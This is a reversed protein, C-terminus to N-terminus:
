LGRNSVRSAAPPAKVATSDKFELKIDRLATSDPALVVTGVPMANLQLLYALIDANVDPALSGPDNDPMKESVYKFLDLLPRNGWSRAFASGTQTSPAHCSKCSGMFLDRGRTAQEATYVGAQTTREAPKTTDQALAPSAALAAILGARQLSLRLDFVSM